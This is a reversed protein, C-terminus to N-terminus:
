TAVSEKQDLLHAWREGRVIRAVHAKSVGFRAAIVGYSAGGASARIQQVQSETLKALASDEGRHPNNNTRGKAACDRVNDGRTGAFHHRDELCPPNDCHHCVAEPLEDHRAAFVLRHAQWVQEGVRVKGYGDRDVSGTFVLCRAGNVVASSEDREVRRMTREYASAIQEASPM